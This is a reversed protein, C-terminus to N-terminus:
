AIAMSRQSCAGDQLPSSTKLPQSGLAPLQFGALATAMSGALLLYKFRTFKMFLYKKM